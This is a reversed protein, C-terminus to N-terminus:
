AFGETQGSLVMFARARAPLIRSQCTGPRFACARLKRNVMSSAAEFPSAGCPLLDEQWPCFPTAHSRQEPGLRSRGRYRATVCSPGSIKQMYATM